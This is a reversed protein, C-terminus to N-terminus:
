FPRLPIYCPISQTPEIRHTIPVAPEVALSWPRPLQKEAVRRINRAALRIARLFDPSVQREAARIEKQSFWFDKIRIKPDDLKRTWELLAADGRKRVDSVIESAIRQAEVDSQERRALLKKEVQPTLKLIRM